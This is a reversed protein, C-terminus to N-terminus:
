KEGLDISQVTSKHDTQSKRPRISHNNLALVTGVILWFYFAPYRSEFPSSAFGWVFFAVVTGALGLFIGRKWEEQHHGFARIATTFISVLLWMLLLVGVFGFQAMIAAWGVDGVRGYQSPHLDKLIQITTPSAVSNYGITLPGGGILPSVDLTGSIVSSLIHVRAVTLQIELYDPNIMSALRDIIGASKDWEGIGYFFDPSKAKPLIVGGFFVIISMVLLIGLGIRRTLFLGTLAVLFLSAISQRSFSMLVFLTLLMSLAYLWLRKRGEKLTLAFSFSFAFVLTLFEGLQDYRGLTGFLRGIGGITQFGAIPIQFIGVAISELDERARFFQAVSEGGILQVLSVAVQVVALGYLLRVVRIAFLENNKVELVIYGVVIYRGFLRVWGLVQYWSTGNIIGSMLVIGLFLTLPLAIPSNELRRKKSSLVKRSVVKILLLYGFAEPWYKFIVIGNDPVFKFVFSEISMYAAILLVLVDDPIAIELFILLLGLIFAFGLFISSEIVVPLCFGIVISIIMAVFLFSHLIAIRSQILM